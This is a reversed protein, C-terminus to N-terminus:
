SRTVLTVAVGPRGQADNATMTAVSVIQRKGARRGIVEALRAAADAEPVVFVDVTQEPESQQRQSGSM